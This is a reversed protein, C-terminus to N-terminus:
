RRPLAADGGSFRHLLLFHGQPTLFWDSFQLNKSFNGRQPKLSSFLAYELSGCAKILDTTLSSCSPTSLRLIIQLTSLFDLKNWFPHFTNNLVGLLGKVQSAGEDPSLRWSVPRTIGGLPVSLLAWMNMLREFYLPCHDNIDGMKQLCHILIPSHREM